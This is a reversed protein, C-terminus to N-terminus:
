LCSVTRGAYRKDEDALLGASKRRLVSQSNVNDDETAGATVKAVTDLFASICPDLLLLM